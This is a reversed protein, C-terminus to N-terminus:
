PKKNSKASNSMPKKLTQKLYKLVLPTVNVRQSASLYDQLIIDLKNKERIHDIASFVGRQVDDLATDRAFRLEERFDQLLRSRARKKARLEREKQRIAEKDTSLDTVKDLEASLRNIEDLADALKKEQPIFKEKLAASAVEAQPAHEMLYPVNVVGISIPDAAHLTQFSFLAFLAMTILLWAKIMAHSNKSSHKTVPFSRM